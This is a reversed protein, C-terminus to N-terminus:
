REDRSASLKMLARQLLWAAFAFLAVIALYDFAFRIKSENFDYFVFETRLTLYDFFKRAVFAYAGYGAFAFASLTTLIRANKKM